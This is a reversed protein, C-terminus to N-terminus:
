FSGYSVGVDVHHRMLPSRSKKRCSDVPFDKTLLLLQLDVIVRSQMAM